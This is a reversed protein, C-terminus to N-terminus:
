QQRCDHEVAEAAASAAMERLAQQFSKEESEDDSDNPLNMMDSFSKLPDIDPKMCIPCVKGYGSKDTLFLAYSSYTFYIYAKHNWVM